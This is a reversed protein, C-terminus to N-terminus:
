MVYIFETRVECSACYMETWYGPVRVVLGCLRYEWPALFTPQQLSRMKSRDTTGVTCKVRVVWCNDGAPYLKQRATPVCRNHEEQRFLESNSCANFLRDSSALIRQIDLLIQQTRLYIRYFKSCFKNPASVSGTPNWITQQTRLYIRYSKSCFKNPASVSGTPNWNSKPNLSLDKLIETVKNHESVSGTPNRASNTPNQSTDQLIETLKNPESVSGTPNWNIRSSKLSFKITKPFLKNSKLIQCLNSHRSTVGDIISSNASM